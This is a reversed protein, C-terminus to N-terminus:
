ALSGVVDSMIVGSGTAEHCQGVRFRLKYSFKRGFICFKSSFFDMM